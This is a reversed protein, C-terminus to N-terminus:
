YDVMYFILVWFVCKVYLKIISTNNGKAGVTVKNITCNGELKVVWHPNRTKAVRTFGSDKCTDAGTLANSAPYPNANDHPYHYASKGAAIDTFNFILM